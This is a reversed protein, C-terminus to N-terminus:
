KKILSKGKGFPKPRITVANSYAYAKGADTRVRVTSCEPQLDDITGEEGAYMGSTIRVPDGVALKTNM